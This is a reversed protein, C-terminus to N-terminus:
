TSHWLDSQELNHSIRGKNRLRHMAGYVTRANIDKFANAVQESTSPGVQILYKAVLEETTPRFSSRVQSVGSANFSKRILKALAIPENLIEEGRAKWYDISAAENNDISVVRSILDQLTERWEPLLVVESFDDKRVENAITISGNTIMLKTIKQMAVNASHKNAFHGLRVILERRPLPEGAAILIDIIRKQADNQANESESVSYLPNINKGDIV